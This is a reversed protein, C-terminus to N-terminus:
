VGLQPVDESLVTEISLRILLMCCFTLGQGGKIRGCLVLPVHRWGGVDVLLGLVAGSRRGSLTRLVPVDWEGWVLGGGLLLLLLLEM